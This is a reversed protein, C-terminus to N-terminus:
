VITARDTSLRGRFILPNSVTLSLSQASKCPNRRRGLPHHIIQRRNDKKRRSSTIIVKSSSHHRSRKAKQKAARKRLERKMSAIMEDATKFPGYTRGKKIEELAKALRADIIRRQAATYELDDIDGMSREENQLRKLGERVLGSLSRNTQRALREAQRLEAPSMSISVAKTTRM